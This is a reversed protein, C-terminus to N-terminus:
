GETRATHQMISQPRPLQGAPAGQQQARLLASILKGTAAIDNDILSVRKTLANYAVVAPLAVFIGVATAVLAEAIGAMVKGMAQDSGLTLHHFAEIVGLVTGFLGIFPANNGITGLLNLGREWQPRVRAAEGDLADGFAEAGDGLRHCARALVQGQASRDDALLQVSKDLDGARLSSAIAGRQVAALKDNQRLSFWRQVAVALSVASLALLLWLVWASGLLAIKSLSQVIDM